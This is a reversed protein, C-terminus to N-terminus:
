STVRMTFVETLRLYDSFTSTAIWEKAKQDYYEKTSALIVDELERQYLSLGEDEPDLGIYMCVLQAVTEEDLM